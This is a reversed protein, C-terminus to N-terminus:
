FVLNSLLKSVKHIEDFLGWSFTAYRDDKPNISKFGKPLHNTPVLGMSDKKLKNIIISKM